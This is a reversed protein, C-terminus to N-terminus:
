VTPRIPGRKAATRRERRPAGASAEPLWVPAGDWGREPQPPRLVVKTSAVDVDRSRRWAGGARIMAAAPRRLLCLHGPQGLGGPRTRGARASVRLVGRRAGRPGRAGAHWRASAAARPSLARRRRRLQAAGREARRRGLRLEADAEVARRRAVGPVPGPPR